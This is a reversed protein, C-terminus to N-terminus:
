KPPSHPASRAARARHQFAQIGIRTEVAQRCATCQNEFHSLCGSFTFHWKM